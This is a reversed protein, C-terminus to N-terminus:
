NCLNILHHPSNELADQLLGDWELQSYEIYFDTGYSNAFNEAYEKAREFTGVVVQDYNKGTSHSRYNILYFKIM